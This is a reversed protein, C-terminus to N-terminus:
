CPTVALAPWRHAQLFILRLFEGHMRCSTSVIAPLLSINQDDAYQKRYANIKRQAHAMSTRQAHIPTPQEGGQFNSSHEHAIQLNSPILKKTLECIQVVLTSSIYSTVGKFLGPPGSPSVTVTSSCNSFVSYQFTRCYYVCVCVSPGPTM